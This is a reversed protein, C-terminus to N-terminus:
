DTNSVRLGQVHINVTEVPLGLVREVTYRVAHAVSDAVTSIRTGYELIVYVDLRIKDELISVEVGQRPDKAAPHVISEFWGRAAMGVVGYSSLAAQSALASVANPSIRISGLSIEEEKKMENKAKRDKGPPAIWAGAPKGKDPPEEWPLIFEPKYGFHLGLFSHFL